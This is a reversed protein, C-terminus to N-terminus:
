PEANARKQARSVSDVLGFVDGMLGSMDFTQSRSINGIVKAFLTFEGSAKEPGVRLHVRDLQGVARCDGSGSLNFAFPIPRGESLRALLEMQDLQEQPIGLNREAGFAEAVAALAQIDKLPKGLASLMGVDIQGVAEFLVSRRTAYWIEPTTATDFYPLDNEQELIDVLRLLRAEATDTKTIKRESGSSDGFRGGAHAPGAAVGGEVGKEKGKRDVEETQGRLGGELASLAEQVLGDNLYVHSFVRVM